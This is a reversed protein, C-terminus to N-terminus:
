SAIQLERSIAALVHEVLERHEARIAADVMHATEVYLQLGASVQERLPVPSGDPLRVAFVADRLRVWRSDRGVVAAVEDFFGNDGSILVGLYVQAVRNLGWSLGFRANLMRGTDGRRLGELGKYVEEVWGVMEASVWAGAREQMAQDWVFARARQQIAAFYGAPDFLTRADRLGQMAAVCAPPNNFWEEVQSPTTTTTTVLLGDILHSAPPAAGTEDHTLFRLDVDSYPGADGRACSGMLIAAQIQPILFRKALGIYDIEHQPSIDSKESFDSM